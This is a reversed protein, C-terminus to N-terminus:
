SKPILATFDSNTIAPANFLASTLYLSYTTNILAIFSELIGLNKFYSIGNNSAKTCSKNGLAVIESTM